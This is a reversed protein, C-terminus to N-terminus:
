WWVNRQRIDRCAQGLGPYANHCLTLVVTAEEIHVAGSGADSPNTSVKHGICM